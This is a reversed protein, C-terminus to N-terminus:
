FLLHKVLTRDDSGVLIYQDPTKIDIYTLTNLYADNSAGFKFFVATNKNNIIGYFASQSLNERQIKSYFNVPQAYRNFISYFLKLLSVNQGKSLVNELLFSSKDDIGISISSKNKLIKYGAVTGNANIAQKCSDFPTLKDVIKKVTSNSNTFDCPVVSAESFPTVTLTAMLAMKKLM